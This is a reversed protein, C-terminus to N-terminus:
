DNGAKSILATRQTAGLNDTIFVVAGDGMLVHTGGMHTTNGIGQTSQFGSLNIDAPEMWNVANQSGTEVFMATNALGDLTDRFKVANSGTMMGSPDVVAVYTTMTQDGPVSPCSYVQVIRQSFPQNVPDDWPKDLDIQQYLADEGLHPLLLTRWSHLPRGQADVTYAPPLSGHAAHYEHLAIGIEKMNNSCSMRRAAERAAQVAPLLLGVCVGAVPCALVACVVAIIIVTNSGSSRPQAPNPGFQQQGMPAQQYPPQQFPPQNSM